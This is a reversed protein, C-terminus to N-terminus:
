TTKSHQIAEWYIDINIKKLKVGHEHRLNLWILRQEFKKRLVEM